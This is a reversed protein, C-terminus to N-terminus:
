RHRPSGTVREVGVVNPATSTRQPLMPTPNSTRALEHSLFSSPSFLTPTSGLCVTLVDDM